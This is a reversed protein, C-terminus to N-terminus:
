RDRLNKWKAFVCNLIWMQQTELAAGDFDYFDDNLVSTLFGAIESACFDPNFRDHNLGLPVKLFHSRVKIDDYQIGCELLHTYRAPNFPLLEDWIDRANAFWPDLSTQAATGFVNCEVISRARDGRRGAIELLASDAERIANLAIYPRYQRDYRGL